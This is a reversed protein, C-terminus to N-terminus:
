SIEGKAILEAREHLWDGVYQSATMRDDVRDAKRPTNAWAFHLWREATRHIAAAIVERDHETLEVNDAM